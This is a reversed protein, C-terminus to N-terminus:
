VGCGVAFRHVALWSARGRDMRTSMCKRANGVDVVDTPPVHAVRLVLSHAVQGAKLCRLLPLTFKGAVVSALLSGFYSILLLHNSQLNYYIEILYVAVGLTVSLIVAPVRGTTKRAEPSSMQSANSPPPEPASVSDEASASCRTVKARRLSREPFQASIPTCKQSIELSRLTSSSGGRPNRWGSAQFKRTARIGPCAQPQPLGVRYALAQPMASASLGTLSAQVIAAQM